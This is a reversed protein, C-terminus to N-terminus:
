NAPTYDGACDPSWYGFVYTNGRGTSPAGGLFAYDYGWEYVFQKIRRQQGPYIIASDNKTCNRLLRIDTYQPKSYGHVSFYVHGTDPLRYYVYTSTSDLKERGPNIVTYYGEAPLQFLFSEDRTNGAFCQVSFATLIISVMALLALFRKM